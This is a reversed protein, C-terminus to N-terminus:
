GVGVLTLAASSPPATFIWGSNNGGDTSNAGAYWAAGGQATSRSISLYDCSVTGSTKSLTHSAATLSGITMLKGSTGNVNFATTVTTTTAATFALTRANTVDSFNITGFTNAGTISLQGTSGAVTYTLTGFTQGAGGFIRTNASAANIIITSSAGSFTLGTANLDFITEAATDILTLTGSGLTLTRTNSGSSVLIGITVNQNGFDLKGRTLNFGRNISSAYTDQLTYGDGVANVVINCTITKNATTITHTGVGVANMNQTGSVTTGSGITLSGTLNQGNNSSFDITRAFNTLTLDKCIYPTNTVYTGAGSSADGIVTDQPMPILTGAGGGSSTSFTAVASWNGAARLYHTVAGTFTIQSNRGGDGLATGTFPIAAGAATIDQFDVNSLSVAAATITRQTNFTSSFVRLRNIQSNGNITLTGTVVQNGELLFQNTVAAGGTITLNVFTNAHTPAIVGTGTFVVTGFSLTGLRPLCSNGTFRVTSGTSVFTLLTIVNAEWPRTGGGQSCTVDCNTIDVRRTTTTSMAMQGTVITQGNGYFSGRTSTINAGASTTLSGQLQWDGGVGNFVLNPMTKGATTITQQTTSTSIFNITGIGTLTLTMGAVLRLAINGAGATADGLSLVATTSAFAMTGVYGTCDVSRAVITTATPITVNGTGAGNDFYVNDAATSNTVAGVGGSTLAFGNAVNWNANGGVWYLDAM